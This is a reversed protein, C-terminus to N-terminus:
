IPSAPQSAPIFMSMPPSRIPLAVRRSRVRPSPTISAAVATASTSFPVGHNKADLAVPLAEGGKIVLDFKDNPPLAARASSGIIETASVASEGAVFQRRSISIM